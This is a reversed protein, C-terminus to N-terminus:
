ENAFLRKRLMSETYMHLPFIIAALFTNVMLVYFPGNASYMSLFPETIVLLFEFLVLFPIFVALELVWNPLKFKSLLFLTAFLSSILVSIGAYQINNRYVLKENELRQQEREKQEKHIREIKFEYEKLSKNLNTKNAMAVLSDNTVQYVELKEMALKHQNKSKYYDYLESASEKLPELLDNEEAIQYAEKVRKIGELENGMRLYTRGLNNLVNARAEIDQHGKESLNYSRTFLSLATDLEMNRLYIMGLNNYGRGLGNSDGLQEKINISKHYAKKSEEDRGQREYAIGLNNLSIAVGIENGIAENAIESEKYIPIAQSYEHRQMYINGINSTVQAVEKDFGNEKGMDMCQTYHELALVYDGKIHAVIGKLNLARVLWLTQDNDMAFQYEQEILVSASDADNFIYYNWILNHLSQLRVSDNLQTNRFDHRLSDQKLAYLPTTNAIIFFLLGLLKSWKVIQHNM